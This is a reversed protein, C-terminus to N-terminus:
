AAAETASRRAALFLAGLGLVTAALMVLGGLVPIAALIRLVVIGAVLAGLPKAAQGMRSLLFGGLAYAAVFRALFTAPVYIALALLSLPLPLLFIGLFLALVPVGLLVAFGVGLAVPAEAELTAAPRKLARPFAWLLVGGILLSAGLMFLWWGIAGAPGDDDDEDVDVQKETWDVSGVSAGDDIAGQEPSRYSLTGEIDAAPGVTLSAVELEVDGGIAGNLDFDAGGGLLNGGISGDFDFTAGGYYVNGGVTVGEPLVLTESLAYLDGDIDATITLTEGVLFADGGVPGDLTLTQAGGFLNDLVDGSLKVTEGGAFLDPSTSTVSVNRGGAFISKSSRGSVTVDEDDSGTRTTKLDDPPAPTAAPPITETAAPTAEAPTVETAAAETPADPAADQAFASPAVLLLALAFLSRTM